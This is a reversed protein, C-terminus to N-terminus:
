AQMARVLKWVMENYPVPVGLRRGEEVIVGNISDIETPRGREIDQLMSSHNTGSVDCIEAVAALPDDLLSTLGKTIAVSHAERALHAVIERREPTSLLEGNPVRWLATLPNIAANIIAKQWVRGEIDPVVETRLGSATLLQAAAVCRDQNASRGGIYSTLSVIFRAEAPGANIAGVYNVGIATREDGVAGALREGNDLGNQLTIALAGPVLLQAAWAAARETQYSKVLLIALDCKPAEAPSDAAGTV